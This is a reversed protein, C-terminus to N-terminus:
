KSNYKLMDVNQKLLLMVLAFFGVVVLVLDEEMREETSDARLRQLDELRM